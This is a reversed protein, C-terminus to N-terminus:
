ETDIIKENKLFDFLTTFANITSTYCGYECMYTMYECGYACKTVFSINAMRACVYPMINM